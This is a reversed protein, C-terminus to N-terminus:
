QERRVRKAQVNFDWPEGDDPDLVTIDFAFGAMM